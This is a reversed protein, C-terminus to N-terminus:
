KAFFKLVQWNALSPERSQLQKGHDVRLRPQAGAASNKLLLSFYLLGM